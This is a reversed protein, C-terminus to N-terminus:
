WKWLKKPCSSNMLFRTFQTVERSFVSISFARHRIKECLIGESFCLTLSCGWSRLRNVNQIMRCPHGLNKVITSMKCWGLQRNVNLVANKRTHDRHLNARLRFNNIEGTYYKFYGACQLVYICNRVDCTRHSTIM